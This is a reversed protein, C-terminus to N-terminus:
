AVFEMELYLTGNSAGETDIVVMMGVKSSFLHSSAYTAIDIEVVQKEGTLTIVEEWADFPKVMVKTGAKGQVTVKLKTMSSIDYGKVDARLFQWVDTKNYAINFGAGEKTATYIGADLGYWGADVKGDNKTIIKVGTEAELPLPDASFSAEIYFEGTLSNGDASGMVILIRGSETFVQGFTQGGIDYKFEQMTGDLTERKEFANFPKFLIEQGATGKVKFIITRMDSLASGRVKAYMFNYQEAKKYTVKFGDGDAVAVYRDTGEDLPMWGANIKTDTATIVKSGEEAADPDFTAAPEASFEASIIEFNSQGKAAGPLGMIIVKNEATPADKKSFDKSEDQTFPAINIVYEKAEETLHIRTEFNDFPKVLIDQGVEGKVTIKFSLMDALADGHIFSVMYSWAGTGIRKNIEVKHSGSQSQTVTYVGYGSGDVWGGISAADAKVEQWKPTVASPQASEVPFKSVDNDANEEDATLYIESITIKGTSGAVGPDPFIIFWTEKTLDLESVDWEYTTFGTTGKVFPAEVNLVDMKFLMSPNIVNDTEMKAKIVLTKMNALVETDEYSLSYAIGSWELKEKFNIVLDEGSKTANIIASETADNSAHGWKDASKLDLKTPTKDCAVGMALVAVMVLVLMISLAIKRMKM